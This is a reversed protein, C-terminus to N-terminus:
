VLLMDLVVNQWGTPSAVSQSTKLYCEHQYKYIYCDDRLISLLAGWFFIGGVGVIRKCISFLSPLATLTSIQSLVVDDRLISLIKM